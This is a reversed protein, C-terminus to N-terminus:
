WLSNGLPQGYIQVAKGSVVLRHLSVISLLLSMVQRLVLAADRQCNRGCHRDLCMNLPEFSSCVYCEQRGEVGVHLPLAPKVRSQFRNIAKKTTITM